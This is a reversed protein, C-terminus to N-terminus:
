SQKLIYLKLPNKTGEEVGYIQLNEKQIREQLSKIDIRQNNLKKNTQKSSESHLLKEM